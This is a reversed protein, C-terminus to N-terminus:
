LFLRFSFFITPQTPSYDCFGLPPCNPPTGLTHLREFAEPPSYLFCMLCSDTRSPSFSGLFVSVGTRQTLLLLSLCPPLDGSFGLFSRFLHARNARPWWSNRSIRPAIPLPYYSSVKVLLESLSPSSSLVLLTAMWPIGREGACCLRPLTRGHFAYFSGPFVGV